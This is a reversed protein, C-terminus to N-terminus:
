ITFSLTIELRRRESEGVIVKDLLFSIVTLIASVLILVMLDHHISKAGLVVTSMLLGVLVLTIGLLLEPRQVVELVLDRLKIVARILRVERLILPGITERSLTGIWLLTVSRWPLEILWTLAAIMVLYIADVGVFFLHYLLIDATVEITLAWQYVGLCLLLSLNQEM